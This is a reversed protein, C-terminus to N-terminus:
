TRLASLLYLALNSTVAYTSNMFVNAHHSRCDDLGWMKSVVRRYVRMIVLLLFLTSCVAVVAEVIRGQNTLPPLPPPGNARRVLTETPALYM